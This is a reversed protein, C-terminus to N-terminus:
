WVYRAIPSYMDYVGLTSCSTQQIVHLVNGKQKLFEEIVGHDRSFLYWARWAYVYEREPAPFGPFSAVAPLHVRSGLILDQLVLRAERKKQQDEVHICM